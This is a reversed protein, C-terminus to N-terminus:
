QNNQNFYEPRGMWPPCFSFLYKWIPYIGLKEDTFSWIDLCWRSLSNSKYGRFRNRYWCVFFIAASISRCLDEAKLYRCNPLIQQQKQISENLFTSYCTPMVM